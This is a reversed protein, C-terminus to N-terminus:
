PNGVKVPTAQVLVGFLPHDLYHLENSRMRRSQTMRYVPAVTTLAASADPELNALGETLADATLSVDESSPTTEPTVTVAPPAEDPSYILDTTVHLYRGLVVAITGDLPRMPAQGAATSQDIGAVNSDTAELPPPAVPITAIPSENETVNSHLHVPQPKENRVLPQRWGVHVLTRYGASKNLRQRLNVLQLEEDPLQVFARLGLSEVADLTQTSEPTTPEASASSLETNTESDVGTSGPNPTPMAAETDVAVVTDSSALEVPTEAAPVGPDTPWRESTAGAADRHAFVIVEIQYWTPEQASVAVPNILAWVGALAACVYACCRALSATWNFM